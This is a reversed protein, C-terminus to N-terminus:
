ETGLKPRDFPFAEATVRPDTLGNRLFKLVQAIETPTLNLALMAPDILTLIESDGRKGGTNYLAMITDLSHGPGDGEHLLGFPERLGVNRLTATKFKGVDVGATANTIAQRGADWTPKHFGINHFANDTFLPPPHCSSCRAKGMYLGFGAIEDADLANEHEPTGDNWLDWPTQDSTLRREHTAIAFVIRRANIVDDAQTGVKYKADNGYVAKFMKPYSNGNAAIFDKMAQPITGQKAVALPTVTALKAEIAAWSRGACAMETSNAPPGSAQAELAAGITFGSTVDPVGVILAPDTTPLDPDYFCGGPGEGNKCFGARGDWFIQSAFMADLYTPPKRGTTQPDTSGTLVGTIACAPVGQAVRLDDSLIDPQTEALGNPGKLKAFADNTRPDSGGAAGRHCTGCAMSDLQGMQEEWFLIKGLM